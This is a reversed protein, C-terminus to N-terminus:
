VFLLLPSPQKPERGYGICATKRGRRRLTALAALLAVTGLGERHAPAVHCGCGGTSGTHGKAEGVPPGGDGGAGGENSGGDTGTSGISSADGPPLGSDQGPGPQAGATLDEDCVTAGGKTVKVHGGLAGTEAFSLVAGNTSDGVTVTAVGANEQVTSAPSSGTDTTSLVNLFVDRANPASPVIELRTGGAEVGTPNPPYSNGEVSFNSVANVKVSAPLLTTGYLVGSGNRLVYSAGNVVPASGIAHLLFRKEFSAQLAEVRDVVVVLDPPVLVLQRSVESAKPPNGNTTYGPSGYAATVNCAVYQHCGTVANATMDGTEYFPGAQLNQKYTALDNSPYGTGAKSRRLPRQGGDNV